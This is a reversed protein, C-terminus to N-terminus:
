WKLILLIVKLSIHKTILIIVWLSKSLLIFDTKLPMRLLVHGINKMSSKKKWNGQLQITQTGTRKQGSKSVCLNLKM